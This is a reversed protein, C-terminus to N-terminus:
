LGRKEKDSDLPPAKELVTKKVFIPSNMRLALAIADSPRADIKLM